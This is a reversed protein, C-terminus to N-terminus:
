EKKLNRKKRLFDKNSAYWKANIERVRDKKEQRYKRYYENLEERTKAMTKCTKM